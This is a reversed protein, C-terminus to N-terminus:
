RRWKNWKTLIDTIKETIREVEPSLKVPEVKKPNPITRAWRLLSKIEEGSWRVNTVVDLVVQKKKQIDKQLAGTKQKLQDSEKKVGEMREQLDAATSSMSQIAPQIGKFTRFASIGLYILAVIALAISLYVIVM